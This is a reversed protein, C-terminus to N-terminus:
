RADATERSRNVTEDRRQERTDAEEGEPMSDDTPSPSGGSTGEGLLPVMPKLNDIGSPLGGRAPALGTDMGRARDRLVKELQQLTMEALELEGDEVQQLGAKFLTQAIDGAEVKEARAKNIEGIPDNFKLTSTFVTERSVGLAIQQQGIATNAIDQEPSTSHFEYRTSFKKDIDSTSYEREMGEEGLETTYGGKIYQDKIMWALTRYIYGLAQLRPLFIADKSATLKSIAVASLPFSLGGYDINPLGGRQLAGVLMNYFLRAANKVDNIPMLTYKETLGLENVKRRGFPDSPKEGSNPEELHLQLAGEFSMDTLTLFISAAHHLHPILGRNSVFLSEGQHEIIGDDMFSQLGVGSQNYVFPAYGLGHLITREPHRDPDNTESGGRYLRDGISIENVEDDWFDTVVAPRTGNLAIGYDRLVEAKTQLAFPAGWMIGTSDSEYAFYRVDYGSIDPSFKDGDERMLCRVVAAGRGLLQEILFGYLSTHRLNTFMQDVDYHIDEYFHEINTADKEDLKRGFVIRQMNAGTMIAKSRSLFVQAENMTVNLVDPTKRGKLDQMEFPDLIALKKDRDYRDYLRGMEKKKDRVLQLNNSIPM